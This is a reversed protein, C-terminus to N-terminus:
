LNQEKILFERFLKLANGRHSFSNKEEMTLEAFTKGLEKVLFIPDYGFGNSGRPEDSVIGTVEGRFCNENGDIDIFAIVSVFRAVRMDEKAGQLKEIIHKNKVEYSTDEGLFRASFVGPKNDLFEVEFGSDDAIVPYDVVKKVERAKILANEEFTLGDEEPDIDLDLDKLSLVEYGLPELISKVEVLKHRNNTALVVKM